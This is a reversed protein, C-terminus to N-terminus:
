GIWGSIYTSWPTVGSALEAGMLLAEVGRGFGAGVGSRYEVDTDRELLLDEHM